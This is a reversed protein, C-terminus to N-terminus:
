WFMGSGGFSFVRAPGITDMHLLKDGQHSPFSFCCGNKWSM